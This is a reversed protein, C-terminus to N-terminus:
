DPRQRRPPSLLAPLILWSASTARSPFCLWLGLVLVEKGAAPSVLAGGGGGVEGWPSVVEGSESYRNIDNMLHREICLTRSSVTVAALHAGKGERICMRIDVLVKDFIEVIHSAKFRTPYRTILWVLSQHCAMVLYAVYEGHFARCVSAFVLICNIAASM